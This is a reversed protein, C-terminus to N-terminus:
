PTILFTIPQRRYANVYRGNQQAAIWNPSIKIVRIAEAICYSNADMNEATVDSIVGNKAVIFKVIITQRFEKEGRPIKIKRAVKDINLKQMLFKRWGTEGGPFSAEVDVKTFIRIEGTSDALPSSPTNTNQATASFFGSFFLFSAVLVNKM